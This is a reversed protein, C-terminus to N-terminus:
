AAGSGRRTDGPPAVVSTASRQRILSPPGDQVPSSSRVSRLHQYAAGLAAAFVIVLAYSWADAGGTLEGFHHVLFGVFTAMALVTVAAVARLDAVVAAYAGVAVAMFLARGLRDAPPFVGAALLAAAVVVM